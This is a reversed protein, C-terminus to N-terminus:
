EAVKRVEFKDSDSVSLDVVVAHGGFGHVNCKAQVVLKVTKPPIEIGCKDREFPQEDDHPHALLRWAVEKGEEDLVQWANAYHEWGEDSHRVTTRICWSGDKSQIAKVYVVQAYNLDAIVGASQGGAPMDAAVHSTAFCLFVLNLVVMASLSKTKVV